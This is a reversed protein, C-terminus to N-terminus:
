CIWGRPHGHNAKFTKQVDLIFSAQCFVVGANRRVFMVQQLEEAIAPDEPRRVM